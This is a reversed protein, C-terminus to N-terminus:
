KVVTTDIIYVWSYFFVTVFMTSISFYPLFLFWFVSFMSGQLWSINLPFCRSYKRIVPSSLPPKKTKKKRNQKKKSIKDFFDLLMLILFYPFKLFWWIGTAIACLGSKKFRKPQWICCKSLARTQLFCQRPKRLKESSATCLKSLM